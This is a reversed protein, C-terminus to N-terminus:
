RSYLAWLLFTQLNLGMFSHSRILITKETCFTILLTVSHVRDHECRGMVGSVRCGQRVGGNSGVWGLVGAGM